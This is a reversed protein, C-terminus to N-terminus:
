SNLSWPLTPFLPKWIKEILECASKAQKCVSFGWNCWDKEIKLFYKRGKRERKNVRNRRASLGGAQADVFVLPLVLLQILLHHSDIFCVCILDRVCRSQPMQSIKRHPKNPTSPRQPPTISDSCSLYILPSLSRGPSSLVHLPDFQPSFGKPLLSLM